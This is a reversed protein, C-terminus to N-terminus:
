CMRAQGTTIGISAALDLGQFADIIDKSASIARVENDEYSRNSFHSFTCLYARPAKLDVKRGGGGGKRYPCKRFAM